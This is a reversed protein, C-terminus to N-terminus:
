SRVYNQDVRAKNFLRGKDDNDSQLLRQDIDKEIEIKAMSPM